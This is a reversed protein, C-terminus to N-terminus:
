IFFVLKLCIQVTMTMTVLVNYFSVPQFKQSVVLLLAAEPYLLENFIFKVGPGAEAIFVYFIHNGVNVMSKRNSFGVVFFILKKGAKETKGFKLM